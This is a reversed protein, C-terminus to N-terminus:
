FKLAGTVVARVVAFTVAFLKVRTPTLQVVAGVLTALAFITLLGHLTVVSCACPNVVPSLTVILPTLPLVNLGVMLPVKGTVTTSEVEKVIADFQVAAEDTLEPLITPAFVMSTLAVPM